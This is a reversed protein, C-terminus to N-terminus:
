LVGEGSSRQALIDVLAGGPTAPRRGEPQPHNRIVEGAELLQKSERLARRVAQRPDTGRARLIVSRLGRPESSRLRVAVETGRDGPAPSMRVDVLEGLMLLPQPLVGNPAIQAESRLITVARWRPGDLERISPQRSVVVRRAVLAVAFAGASFLIIRKVAM